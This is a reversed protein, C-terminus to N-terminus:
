AEAGTGLEVQQEAMAVAERMIRGVAVVFQEQKDPPVFEVAMSAVRRVVATVQEPTLVGPQKRAWTEPFQRELLWECAKHNSNAHERQLTVLSYEYAVNAAYWRKRFDLDDALKRRVQSEPVGLSRCLRQTGIGKAYGEILAAQIAPDDIALEGEFGRTKPRGRPM